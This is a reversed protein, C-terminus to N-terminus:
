RMPLQAVRLWFSEISHIVKPFENIGIPKTIYCNAHSDYSRLVDQESNSSTFVVVPIRKLDLDTKIEKLVERGNKKPLNLDLLILNPRVANAHRGERRLFHLAETGDEVVNIRCRLNSGKLAEKTLRVDGPNDEVHLVEIPQSFLPHSM